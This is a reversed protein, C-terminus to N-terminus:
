SYRFIAIRRLDDDISNYCFDCILCIRLGQKCYKGWLADVSYVAVYMCWARAMYLKWYTHDLLRRSPPHIYIRSSLLFYWTLHIFIHLRCVFLFLSFMWASGVFVGQREKWRCVSRMCPSLLTIQLMSTKRTNTTVRRQRKFSNMVCSQRLRAWVIWRPSVMDLSLIPFSPSWQQIDRGNLRWVKSFLQLM